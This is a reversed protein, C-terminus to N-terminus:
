STADALQRCISKRQQKERLGTELREQPRSALSVTFVKPVGSIVSNRLPVVLGVSRDGYGGEFTSRACPPRRAPDPRRIDVRHALKEMAVGIDVRTLMTATRTNM